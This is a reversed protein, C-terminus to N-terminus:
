EKRPARLRAVTFILMTLVIGFHLWELYFLVRYYWDLSFQERVFRYALITSLITAAFNPILTFLWGLLLNTKHSTVYRIAAPLYSHLTLVSLLVIFVNSVLAIIFDYLAAVTFNPFVMNGVLTWFPTIALSPKPLWNIIWFLLIWGCWLWRHRKLVLCLIGCIILPIGLAVFGTFGRLFFSLLACALLIFGAWYGHTSPPSDSPISPTDQPKPPSQTPINEGVLEDLSVGFLSCMRVLKDLEPVATGTEWKSVSQRSVELADALETQSMNRQTRLRYINEALNM